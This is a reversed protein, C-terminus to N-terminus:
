VERGNVTLGGTIEVQGTIEIGGGAKLRLATGEEVSLVVEGPAPADERVARGAVCPACDPGSKIVLVTEGRRPTWHYGGPLCLTVNRREGALAVGAATGSVTVQGLEAAPESLDERVQRNTMWM